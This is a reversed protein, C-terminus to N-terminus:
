AAANRAPDLDLRALISSAPSRARHPSITVVHAFWNHVDRERNGAILSDVTLILGLYNAAAAREILRASSARDGPPCIQFFRMRAALAGVQEISNNAATSLALAIGAQAAAAALHLDADPWCIGNLGTPGIMFPAALRTGFLDIALDRRGNGALVNPRFRHARFAALNWGITVEDEAGGDLFDWIVDPLRRRGLAALDHISAADAVRM